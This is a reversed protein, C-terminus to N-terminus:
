TFRSPKMKDSAPTCMHVALPNQLVCMKKVVIFAQTLASLFLCACRCVNPGTNPRRQTRCRPRPGPGLELAVYTVRMWCPSSSALSEGSEVFPAHAWSGSWTERAPQCWTLALCKFICIGSHKQPPGLDWPWQEMQGLAVGPTVEHGARTRPHTACPTCARSHRDTCM